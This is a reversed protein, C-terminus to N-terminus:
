KGFDQCNGITLPEQPALLSPSHSQSVRVNTSKEEERSGGIGTSSGSMSGAFTQGVVALTTSGGVPPSLSHGLESTSPTGFGSESYRRQTEVALQTPPSSFILSDRKNNSRSYAVQTNWRVVVRAIRNVAEQINTWGVIEGIDVSLLAM